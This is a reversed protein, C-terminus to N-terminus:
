IASCVGRILLYIKPAALRTNGTRILLIIEKHSPFRISPNIFAGATIHTIILNRANIHLRLNNNSQLQWAIAECYYKLIRERYDCISFINYIKILRNSIYSDMYM